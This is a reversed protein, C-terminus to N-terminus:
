AKSVSVIEDDIKRKTTAVIIDDCGFRKTREIVHWLLPKGKIKSLVKKPLRRSDTRAQIIVVVRKGKM